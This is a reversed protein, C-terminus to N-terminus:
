LPKKSPIGTHRPYSLPTDSVKDIKIITRHGGDHPLEFSIIDNIKGGMIKIAKTSEKIEEDTKGSKLPIFLGNKHIFALCYESLTSLNAVARSTVIDYKDRYQKDHALEEVRSQIAQANSLKLKEIEQNVYDIKKKTADTMMITSSAFAIALVLGPFGAGTGVDIIKYSKEKIDPIAKIIALSDAIHKIAIGEPDTIATLNMKANTEVLDEYLMVLRDIQENSMSLDLWDSVEYLIAIFKEKDNM